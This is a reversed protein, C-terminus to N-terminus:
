SISYKLVMNQVKTSIRTKDYYATKARGDGETGLALTSNPNSNDVQYERNKFVAPYNRLVSVIAIGKM